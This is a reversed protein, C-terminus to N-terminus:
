KKKGEPPAVVGLLPQIAEKKKKAKRLDSLYSGVESLGVGVIVGAIFLAILLFTNDNM